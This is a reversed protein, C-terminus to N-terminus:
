QDSLVVAATIWIPLAEPHNEPSTGNYTPNESPHHMKGSTNHNPKRNLHSQPSYEVTPLAVSSSKQESSHYFLIWPQCSKSAPSKFICFQM